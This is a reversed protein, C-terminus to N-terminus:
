PTIWILPQSQNGGRCLAWRTASPNPQINNRINADLMEENKFKEVHGDVFLVHSAEGHPKKNARTGGITSASPLFTGNPVATPAAGGAPPTSPVAYSQGSLGLERFALTQAPNRVGGESEELLYYNMGYCVRSEDTTANPATGDTKPYYIGSSAPCKWVSATKNGQTKQIYKELGIVFTYFTPNDISGPAPILAQASPATGAAAAAARNTPYTEEYDQTYMNLSTGIQKLNSQCHSALAARRAQAFVPFLIAALIAIIAIVVLLEILTFGRQKM